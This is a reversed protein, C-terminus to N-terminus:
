TLSSAPMAPTLPGLNDAAFDIVTVPERGSRRRAWQKLEFGTCWAAHRLRPILTPAVTRLCILRRSEKTIRQKYQEDGRLYDIGCLSNNHVHRLTAFGLILGPNLDAHRRDFGMSYAYMVRNGGIFSLEGAISEGQHELATLYLQGRALFDTTADRIFDCFRPAAFSGTEGVENWRQQHMEILRTLMEMAQVETEARRYRYTTAEDIQESWRRMKRRQTKGHQKIHVDWSADTPKFWVSMRSSAHLSSGGSKLALALATMAADGEVIGDFELLDWGWRPCSAVSILHEGMQQAIQSADREHALVSVYDSCADGDGMIALTRGSPGLGRRHQEKRSPERRYLPLLGRLNGAQDRAVIVYPERGNGLHRWWPGIWSTERFPVGRALGNWTCPDALLSDIESTIEISFM